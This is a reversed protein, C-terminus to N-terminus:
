CLAVVTSLDWASQGLEISKDIVQKGTFHLTAETSVRQVNFQVLASLKATELLYEIKILAAQM